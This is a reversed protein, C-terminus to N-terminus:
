KFWKNYLINYDESRSLKLLSVNIKERLESGEQVAIGYYQHDFINDLLMVNDKNKQTLYNLVPMDFVVADVEKDKLAVYCGDVNSYPIPMAKVQTLAKKSTTGEPYAVKMGGLDNYSNISYKNNDSNMMVSMKATVYPAVFYIGIWMVMVAWAKGKGTMPTKDGYGTSTMTVNAWYVADGFGPILKDNFSTKGRELWWMILASFILFVCLGVMDKWTNKIFAIITYFAGWKNEKNILIGLGSRMYPHSFDVMTEREDNITIGAIAVDFEGNQVGPLLDGFKDINVFKYGINLDDAIYKWVDIDFGEEGMVCPPFDHIAVKLTDSYSISLLTLLVLLWKM